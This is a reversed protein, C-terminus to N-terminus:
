TYFHMGYKQGSKGNHQKDTVKRKYKRKLRKHRHLLKMASTNIFMLSKYIENRDPIHKFNDLDHYRRLNKIITQILDPVTSQTNDIHLNM